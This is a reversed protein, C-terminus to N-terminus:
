KDSPIERAERWAAVYDELVATPDLIPDLAGDAAYTKGDPFRCVGDRIRLPISDFATAGEATDYHVIGMGHQWNEPRVTPKAGRGQVGSRVSPVIGDIRCLCGFSAAMVEQGGQRTRHTLYQIEVRHIHGQITSTIESKAVSHVTNGSRAMEGHITKIGDNLWLADSPYGDVYTVGLEEFRLLNPVTLVPWSDPEAARRLRLAAKANDRIYSVLRMDHNGEHVYVEPAISRQLALYRYAVELSPQITGFFEPDQAFRSMEALDLFDGINIIVDPKVAMAVRMATEMATVDHMPLLTGDEARRFGIQPDPFVVATKWGPERAPRTFKLRPIKVPAVPRVVPWDPGDAWRPTVILRTSTKANALPQTYEIEGDANKIYGTHSGEREEFAVQDISAIDELAMGSGEILDAIRGLRDSLRGRAARVDRAGADDTLSM